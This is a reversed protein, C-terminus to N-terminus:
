DHIEVKEWGLTFAEVEHNNKFDYEKEQLVTKQMSIYKIAIESTIIQGSLQSLIWM